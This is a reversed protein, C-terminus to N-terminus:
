VTYNSPDNVITVNTLELAFSDFANIGYYRGNLNSPSIGLPRSPFGSIDIWAGISASADNPQITLYLLGSAGSQADEIFQVMRKAQYQSLREFQVRMTAWGHRAQSGDSRVIAVAQQQIYSISPSPFNYNPFSGLALGAETLSIKYNWICNKDM